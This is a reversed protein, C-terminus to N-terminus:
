CFFLIYVENQESVDAFASNQETKCFLSAM